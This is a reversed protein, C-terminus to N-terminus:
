QLAHCRVGQGSVRQSGRTRDPDFPLKVLGQKRGWVPAAASGQTAPATEARIDDSELQVTVFPSADRGCQLGRCRVVAVYLVNENGMAGTESADSASLTDDGKEWFANGKHPKPKAQGGSDRLSELVDQCLRSELEEFTGDESLGRYSLDKKLRALTPRARVCKEFFDDYNIRAGARDPDIEKMVRYVESASMECGLLIAAERLDEATIYAPHRLGGIEIEYGWDLPIEGDDDDTPWQNGLVPDAM